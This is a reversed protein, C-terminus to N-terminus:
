LHFVDHVEGSMTHTHAAGVLKLMSDRHFGRHQLPALANHQPLFEGLLEDAM